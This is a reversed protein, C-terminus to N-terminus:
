YCGLNCFFFYMEMLTTNRGKAEQLFDDQDLVEELSPYPPVKSLMTILPSTPLSDGFADWFNSM